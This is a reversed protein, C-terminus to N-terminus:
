LPGERGKGGGGKEWFIKKEEANKRQRDKGWSLKGGKKSGGRHPCSSNNKRGTKENLGSPGFDPNKVEHRENGGVVPFGHNTGTPFELAEDIVPGGGGVKTLDQFKNTKEEWTLHVGEGVKV